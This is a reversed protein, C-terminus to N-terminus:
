KINRAITRAATLIAAGGAISGAGAALAKITSIAAASFYTGAIYGGAGTAIAGGAAHPVFSAGGILAKAAMIVPVAPLAM